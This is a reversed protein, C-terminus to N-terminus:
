EETTLDMFDLDFDLRQTRLSDLKILEEEEKESQIWKVNMIMVAEELLKFALQLV